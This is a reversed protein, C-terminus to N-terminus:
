CSEMVTSLGGPIDATFHVRYVCTNNIGCLESFTATQGPALSQLSIAPAASFTGTTKVVTIDGCIATVSSNLVCSAGLNIPQRGTNMMTLLFTGDSCSYNLLRFDNSPGSTFYNSLFWLWFAAAIFFLIIIIGILKRAMRKDM